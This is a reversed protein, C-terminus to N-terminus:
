FPDKGWGYMSLFQVLEPLLHNPDLEEGACLPRVIVGEIGSVILNGLTSPDPAPAHAHSCGNDLADILRAITASRAEIAVSGAAHTRTLLARMADPSAVALRLLRRLVSELREGRPGDARMAALLEDCLGEWADACGRAFCDQKGNFHLYFDSRKMSRRALVTEISAADYGLEGVALLM